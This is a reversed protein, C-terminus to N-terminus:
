KEFGDKGFRMFSVIASIIAFSECLIGGLTFNIFNHILWVPSIFILQAYRIIKGNGYWMVISGIFIAAFTLLALFIQLAGRTYVLLSITICVTYLGNVIILKWLKKDSKRFIFGRVINSSNLLAASIAGILVFNLAFALGSLGQLLFFIYNRKSQFSMMSLIMGIIGLTQAIVENTM